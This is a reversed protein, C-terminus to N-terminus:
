RSCNDRQNGDFGNSRMCCSKFASEPLNAFEDHLLPARRGFSGVSRSPRVFQGVARLVARELQVAWRRAMRLRLPRSPGWIALVEPSAPEGGKALKVAGHRYAESM